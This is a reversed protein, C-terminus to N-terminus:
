ARADPNVQAAQAQLAALDADELGPTDDAEAAQSDAVDAPGSAGQKHPMCNGGCARCSGGCFTPLQDADIHELLTPLYDTGLIMFKSLTNEDLQPDLSFSVDTALLCRAPAGFPGRM